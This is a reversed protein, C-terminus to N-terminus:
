DSRWTSKNDYIGYGVYVLITLSIVALLMSILSLSTNSGFTTISLYGSFITAGAVFVVSLILLGYRALLISSVMLVLTVLLVIYYYTAALRTTVISSKTSIVTPPSTSANSLVLKATHEENPALDTLYYYDPVFSESTTNLAYTFVQAGDLYMAFTNNALYDTSNLGWTWRVWTEGHTQNLNMIEASVPTAVLLLVWVILLMFNTKM